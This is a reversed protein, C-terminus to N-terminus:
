MWKKRKFFWYLGGSVAAMLVWVYAYGYSWDLEPMARFNMGYVGVIFTLPLFISSILTLTKMIENMRDSKMAMQLELLGSLSERFLDISDVVRSIHDYVDFFYVDKDQSIFPLDQHTMAGLITKEEIFVKRLRHLRRKYRFIDHTVQVFPNRYVQRELLEVQEEYHNVAQSYEDVCSDLIRYLIEGSHDMMDEKRLLEKELEDLFPIDDQSITVVYNPGVVIGIEQLRLSTKEVAFFTLFIHSKYRDLKPRQNLKVADEVLLPHCNFLEELVQKVEEPDPKKLRIWAVEHSQPMRTGIHATQGSISDYVLLPIM